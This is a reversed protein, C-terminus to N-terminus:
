QEKVQHNNCRDPEKLEPDRSEETLDKEQSSISGEELELDESEQASHSRQEMSMPTGRLEQGLSPPLLIM